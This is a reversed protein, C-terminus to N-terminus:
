HIRQEWDIHGFDSNTFFVMKCTTDSRNMDIILLKKKSYCKPSRCLGVAKLIDPTPTKKCVRLINSDETTDKTITKSKVTKLEIRKSCRKQSSPLNSRFSDLGFMSRSRFRNDPISISAPLGAFEPPEVMPAFMNQNLTTNSNLTCDVIPRVIRLGTSDISINVIKSSLYYKLVNISKPEKTIVTMRSPIKTMYLNKHVNNLHIKMNTKNQFTKNCELCKVFPISSDHLQQIHRRLNSVKKKNNQPM